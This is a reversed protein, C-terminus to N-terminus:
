NVDDVNLDEPNEEEPLGICDLLDTLEENENEEEEDDPFLERRAVISPIEPEELLTIAAAPLPLKKCKEQRRSMSIDSLIPDSSDMARNFVDLLNAERSTMRARKERDHRYNKNKSEGAQESLMGLPLASKEIISKGHVLIKHLTVPMFFWPYTAVYKQALDTCFDGFKTSNIPLECSIVCLIVHLGQVLWLDIGLIDAFKEQNKTNFVQRATNGDNTNGAGGPQPFDVRLGFEKKIKAQIDYKRSKLIPNEKGQPVRWKRLGDVNRYGLHLCFELFRIWAHLPSIGYQLLTDDRPSFDHRNLQNMEKPTAGCVPCSAYSTAGSIISLVKGDIVTLYLKFNVNITINNLITTYVQLCNAQEEVWSKEALISENTEKLFQIRLPRCSRVSQPAKNHWLPHGANSILQLPILTTVFLGADSVQTNTPDKFKQKYQSQGTSGDFGWSCGLTMNLVKNQLLTTYKIICEEQLKLIRAITHNLLGQLSVSALTESIQIREDPRCLTKAQLVNSYPPFLISKHAVAATRLMKYTNVSLDGDLILALAENDSLASPQETVLRQVIASRNPSKAAEKLIFALEHEGQQTAVLEASKVIKTAPENFLKQSLEVIQKKKGRDSSNEFSTKPRGVSNSTHSKSTQTLIQSPKLEEPIEFKSELWGSHKSKFRDLKRGCENWWGKFRSKINTVTQRFLVVETDSLMPKITEGLLCRIEECCIDFDKSCRLIEILDSHKLFKPQQLQSNMEAGLEM